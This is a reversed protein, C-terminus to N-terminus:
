IKLNDYKKFTDKLAPYLQKYFEYYEEYRKVQEPIPQVIKEARLIKGCAEGTDKFEGCAVMAAIAAGCAPGEDINNRVIETGYIDAQMQLWFDSKAGGGSAFVRQPTIGLERLIEISDKLSFTIGEMVARVIENWGHRMTLGIFTGKANADVHPTREGNLYPLFYLGESGSKAQAACSTMWDYIGMGEPVLRKGALNDRLWQFSGGAANTCGFFCWKNNVAHCYCLGARQKEDIIPKDTSTFVVGSTGITASVLGDRVVGNGMGGMSQDGGGAIVPTGAPIGLEAAIEKTVYGAIDGAEMLKEPIISFDLGLLDFIKKNWTRKVTDFLCTASADSVETGIEGTLWFRVYDKPFLIYRTKELLAPRNEKLWLLKSVWYSSLPMNGTEERWFDLGYENIIGTAQKDSRSDAWIICPSLVQKEGDLLVSGLMQGSLGICGIEASSKLQKMLSIVANKTSRIWLEPAQEACNPAPTEYTHEELSKALINGETDLALVKVGSTGIDIGIYVKM